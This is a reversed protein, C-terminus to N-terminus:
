ACINSEVTEDNNGTPDDGSGDSIPAPLEFLKVCNPHSLIGPLLRLELRKKAKYLNVVGYAPNIFNRLIISTYKQSIQKVGVADSHEPIIKFTVLYVGSANSIFGVYYNSEMGELKALKVKYNDMYARVADDYKGESFLTDLDKGCTQFNQMLSKENSIYKNMIICFVDVGNNASTIVDMAGHGKGVQKGGTTKEIFWESFEDEIYLSRKSEAYFRLRPQLYEKVMGSLTDIDLEEPPPVPELVFTGSNNPRIINRVNPDPAYISTIQRIASNVAARKQSSCVGNKFSNCRDKMAKLTKMNKTLVKRDNRYTGNRTRAGIAKLEDGEKTYNTAGKKKLFGSMDPQIFIPPVSSAM